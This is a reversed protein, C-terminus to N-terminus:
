CCNKLELDYHPNSFKIVIRMRRFGHIQSFDMASPTTKFDLAETSHETWRESDRLFWGTDTHKLLVRMGSALRLTHFLYNNRLIFERIRKARPPVAIPLSFTFRESGARRLISSKISNGALAVGDRPQM